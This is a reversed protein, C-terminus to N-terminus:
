HKAGNTNLFQASDILKQGFGMAEDPTMAVWQWPGTRGFDIVVQGRDNHGIKAVGPPMSAPPANPPYGIYICIGSHGPALRCVGVGACTPERPPSCTPQGCDCHTRPLDARHGCHECIPRVDPRLEHSAHCWSCTLIMM